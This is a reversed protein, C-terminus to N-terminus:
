KLTGGCETCAKWKIPAGNYKGEYTQPRHKGSPSKECKVAFKASKPVPSKERSGM